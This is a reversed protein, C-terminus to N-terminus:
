ALESGFAITTSAPSVITAFMATHLAASRSGWDTWRCIVGAVKCRIAPACPSHSPGRPRGDLQRALLRRCALVQQAVAPMAFGDDKRQAVFLILL